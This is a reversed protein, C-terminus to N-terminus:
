RFCYRLIIIKENRFAIFKYSRKHSLDSSSGASLQRLSYYLILQFLSSLYQFKMSSICLFVIETLFIDFEFFVTVSFFSIDCLPYPDYIEYNASLFQDVFYM